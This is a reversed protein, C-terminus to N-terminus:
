DRLDGHRAENGQGYVGPPPWRLHRPFSRGRDPLQVQAACEGAQACSSPFPLPPLTPTLLARSRNRAGHRPQAYVARPNSCELFADTMPQLKVFTAKRLTVNRVHVISGESLSLHGMLQPPPARTLPGRARAAGQALALAPLAGLVAHLVNGRAGCVGPRGRAVAADHVRERRPVADSVPHKPASRPSSPSLPTLPGSQAPAPRATTRVSANWLLHRCFSQALFRRGWFTLAAGHPGDGRRRSAADFEQQGGGARAQWRGGHVPLPLARRLCGQPRGPAPARHNEPAGHARFRPSQSM